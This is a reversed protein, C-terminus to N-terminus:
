FNNSGRERPLSKYLVMSVYKHGFKQTSRLARFEGGPGHTKHIYLHNLEVHSPRPLITSSYSPDDSTILPLKRPLKPPPKDFEKDNFPMNDYSWPPSPPCETDGLTAVMEPIFDRLDLINYPCGSADLAWPFEPAHTHYGGVIYRYHYVGTKLAKFIGYVHPPTQLQLAERTQWNDWSGTVAVDWNVPHKWTINVYKLGEHVVREVYGDQLIQRQSM